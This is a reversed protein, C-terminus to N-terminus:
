RVPVGPSTFIFNGALQNCVSCVIDPVQEVQMFDGSFKLQNVTFNGLVAMITIMM